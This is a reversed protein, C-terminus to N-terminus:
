EELGYFKKLDKPDGEIFREPNNKILSDAEGFDCLQFPRKSSFKLGSPTTWSGTESIMKVLVKGMTIRTIIDSEEERGKETIAEIADMM